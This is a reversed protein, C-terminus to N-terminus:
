GLLAVYTGPLLLEGLRRPTIATNGGLGTVELGVVAGCNNAHLMKERSRKKM